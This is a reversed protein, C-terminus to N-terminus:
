RQAGDQVWKNATTPSFVLLTKAHKYMLSSRINNNTFVSVIASFDNGIKQLTSDWEPALISNKIFM